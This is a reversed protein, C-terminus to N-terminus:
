WDKVVAKPSTLLKSSPNTRSLMLLQEVQKDNLSYCKLDPDGHTKVLADELSKDEFFGAIENADVPLLLLRATIEIEDKKGTEKESKSENLQQKFKKIQGASNNTKIGLKKLKETKEFSVSCDNYLVNTGEGKELLTKDYALVSAPRSTPKERHGLYEVNEKLWDLEAKGFWDAKSLEDLNQPYRDDHNCAFILMAKGLDSLNQASNWRNEIDLLSSGGFKTDKVRKKECFEVHSDNFLLNTCGNELLMTKDYAILAQPEVVASRGRGLYGVNELAWSVVEDKDDYRKILELGYPYREDHDDTYMMLLLGLSKLKKLSESRQSLKEDQLLTASENDEVSIPSNQTLWYKLRCGKKDASLVTIQYTNSEKTTVILDKPLNQPFPYVNLGQSELHVISHNIAVDRLLVLGNSSGEDDSAYGLDGKGKERLFSSLENSNVDPVEILDGTALDLIVPSYDEDPLYIERVNRTEQPNEVEIQRIRVEFKKADILNSAMGLDFELQKDSVVDVGKSIGSNEFTQYAAKIEKSEADLLRLRFEWRTKPYSTVLMSVDANISDGIKEFKISRCKLLPPKEASQLIFPIYQDFRLLGRCYTQTSDGKSGLPHEGVNSLYEFGFKEQLRDLTHVIGLWVMSGKEPMTGPAFAIELVTHARDPVNELLPELNDPFGNADLERGEFTVRDNEDDTVVRVFHRISYIGATEEDTKSNPKLSVNKFEAWEYPRTQFEFHDISDPELNTFVFTSEHLPHIHSEFKFLSSKSSPQFVNGRNDIGILRYDYIFVTGITDSVTLILKEKTGEAPEFKLEGPGFQTNARAKGSTEGITKWQGAAIGFAVTTTKSWEDIQARKASLGSPKKVILDNQALTREIRFYDSITADDPATIRYAIEYAPAKSTYNSTDVTVIQQNLLNGDPRWWQKGASPYECIGVLEVTVGNSLTKKFESLEKQTTTESETKLRGSMAFSVPILLSAILMIAIASPLWSIKTQNPHDKALLRRIRDFLGGGDAAVALTCGARVQEMSTLARAYAVRDGSVAVALDDCCNEREARIKHSVWWVAPHYFGLIEVATQLM